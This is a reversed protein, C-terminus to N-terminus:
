DLVCQYRDPDQSLADKIRDQYINVDGLGSLLSSIACIVNGM